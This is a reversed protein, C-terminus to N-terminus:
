PAVRRVRSAARGNGTASAPPTPKSAAEGLAQAFDHEDQSLRKLGAGAPRDWWRWALGGAGLGGAVPVAAMAALVQRRTIKV